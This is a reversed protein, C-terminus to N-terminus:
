VTNKYEEETVDFAYSKGGFTAEEWSRMHTYHVKRAGVERPTLSTMRSFNYRPELLTPLEILPIFTDAGLVMSLYESSM